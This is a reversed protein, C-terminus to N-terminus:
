VFVENSNEGLCNNIIRPDYLGEDDSSAYVDYPM